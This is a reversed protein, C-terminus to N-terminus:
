PTRAHGNIPFSATIKGSFTRVEVRYMGPLLGTMDVLEGGSVRGANVLTGSEDFLELHDASAPLRLRVMGPVPIPHIAIAEEQSNGMFPATGDMYALDTNEEFPESTQGFVLNLCGLGILLIITRM